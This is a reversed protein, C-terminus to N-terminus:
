YLMKHLWCYRTRNDLYELDEDNEYAEREFSINEYAKSGYFPLKLLYELVYIFYFPLVGLELQQQFHISEHNITKQGKLNWFEDDSNYKERLIVVPFLSMGGIPMLISM